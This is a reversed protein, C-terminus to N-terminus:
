RGPPCCRTSWGGRMFAQQRAIRDLEGRPLGGRRRVFSLADGGSVSQRGAKFAAGSDPDTTDANRM